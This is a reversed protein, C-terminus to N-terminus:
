VCLNESLKIGLETVNADTTFKQEPIIKSYATKSSPQNPKAAEFVPETQLESDIEVCGYKCKYLEARSATCVVYLLHDQLGEKKGASWVLPLVAKSTM